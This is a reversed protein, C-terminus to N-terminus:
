RAAGFSCTKVCHRCGVCKDADIVAKGEFMKIAQVPCSRVCDGCGVCKARFIMSKVGQAPVIMVTCLSLFLTFMLITKKM